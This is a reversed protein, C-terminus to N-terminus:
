PETACIKLFSKNTKPQVPDPQEMCAKELQLSRVSSEPQASAEGQPPKEQQPSRARLTHAETTTTCPSPQGM